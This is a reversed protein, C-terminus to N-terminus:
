HVYIYDWISGPLYNIFDVQPSDFYATVPAVVTIIDGVELATRAFMEPSMRLDPYANCSVTIVSSGSLASVPATWYYIGGNIWHESDWPGSAYGQPGDEYLVLNSLSSIQLHGYKLELSLVWFGAIRGLDSECLVTGGSIYAPIAGSEDQLIFRWSSFDEQYKGLATIRARIYLPCAPVSQTNHTYLASIGESSAPEGSEIPLLPMYVGQWGPAVPILPITEQQRVPEDLPFEEIMGACASLCLLILLVIM